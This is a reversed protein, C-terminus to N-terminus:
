DKDEGKLRKPTLLWILRGAGDELDNWHDIQFEICALAATPMREDSGTLRSVLEEFGPNHGVMLACNVGDELRRILRMLEASTAGYISDNFELRATLGGAEVVAQTTQRARAAPSSIILDPLPARLKLEEGMRPADRKGRDALPREFDRLAVDDWSSKAHRLLLLTKM